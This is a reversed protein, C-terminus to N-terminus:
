SSAQLGLTALQALISDIATNNAEIDAKAEALRAAISAFANEVPVRDASGVNNAETIDAITTSATGGSNDTIAQLTAAPDAIHTQQVAPTAGFFGIKVNTDKQIQLADTDDAVVSFFGTGKTVVDVGVNADDGSATLSPDGGTAANALTLENVASATATLKLIELGNTDEIATAIHPSTLPGGDGGATHEHDPLDSGGGPQLQVIGVGTELFRVVRGVRSNSGKTLTFTADDSAYVDKWLDTIALGSISAKVRADRYVQVQKDGALGDSNDVQKTALGMFPDGAQLPRAYGSGNDGVLAGQYIIDSAIVDYGEVNGTSVDLPTDATLTAM